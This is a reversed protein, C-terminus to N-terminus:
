RPAPSAVTRQMADIWDLMLVVRNRHGVIQSAYKALAFGRDDPSLAM